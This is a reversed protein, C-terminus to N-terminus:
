KRSVDMKNNLNIEHEETDHPSLSSFLTPSNPTQIISNEYAYNQPPSLFPATTYSEYLDFNGRTIEDTFEHVSEGISKGLQFLENTFIDFQFLYM